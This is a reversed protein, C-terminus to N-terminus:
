NKNDANNKKVETHSVNQNEQKKSWFENWSLQALNPEAVPYIFTTLQGDKDEINNTFTLKCSFFVLFGFFNIISQTITWQKLKKPQPPINYLGFHFIPGLPLYNRLDVVFSDSLEQLIALEENPIAEKENKEESKEPEAEEKKEENETKEEENKFYFM